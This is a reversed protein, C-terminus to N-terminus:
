RHMAWWLLPVIPTTVAVDALVHAAAWGVAPEIGDIAALLLASAAGCGAPVRSAPPGAVTLLLAAAAAIWPLWVIARAARRSDLALSTQGHARDVEREWSSILACNVFSVLAFAGLGAVLGEADASSLLFVAVGGTLLLAVVIEKPARWPRDRHVLQHSLLYMLVPALLVAGRFLSTEDLGALAVAADVAAVAIWAAAVRWRWRQYFHHRQTRIRRSDLRWGEIWRDAAYALWISLALVVVHPGRLPVRAARAILTQWLLCVVPADISLITLWQWWRPRSASDSTM